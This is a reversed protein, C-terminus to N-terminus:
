KSESVMLHDNFHYKETKVSAPYDRANMLPTESLSFLFLGKPSTIMQIVSGDSALALEKNSLVYYCDPVKIESTIDVIGTATYSIAVIRREVSVPSESVYTQVDLMIRDKTSGIVYVGAVKKDTSFTKEFTKGDPTTLTVSYNNTEKMATLVFNGSGTIWGKSVAPAGTNEGAVLQICNGSPLLLWTNNKYRAIRGVGVLGDPLSLTGTLKGHDDYVSVLAEGLVYFVGQDYAFDRPTAAVKFKLAIKGSLQDAIIIEGSADSLFATRHKDMVEFSTCGLNAGPIKKYTIGDATNWNTRSIEKVNFGTKHAKTAAPHSATQGYTMVFM